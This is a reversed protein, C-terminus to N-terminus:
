TRVAPRSINATDLDISAVRLLVVTVTIVGLADM